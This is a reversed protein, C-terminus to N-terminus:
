YTLSKGKTDYTGIMKGDANLCKVTYTYTKGEEVDTDTYYTKSRKSLSVFKGSEDKKMVRYQAVGEVATWSLQIGTEKKKLKLDSVMVPPIPKAYTISKGVKDYAGYYKGEANITRVTYTYTKGEETATKDVYTTASVKALAVFNGSEDKKMVRYKAAGDIANWSIAVGNEANALAVEPITETTVTISKGTTDYDGVYSGSANMYRVTYIYTKGAEVTKDVYSTASIKALPAFKGGAEKRMVRYKAAIPRAEWSIRVGEAVQELSVEQVCSVITFTSNYTGTYNGLGTVTVKGIGIATNDSYSLSYDKGETLVVSGDKVIMKPTLESGMYYIKEEEPQVTIASNIAKANITFSASKSGKYNGKGTVTATATGANVNNKYTVTYDTGKTLTKSGNKVVVGPEKSTGSYTYSTTQVTLDYGSLSIANITFNLEKTGGYNGKGTITITGTGANTNNSYSITYNTGSVLTTSGNKVTVTPRIASGTYDFSKTYDYTLTDVSIPKITFYVYKTNRYYGKGSVVVTGTGVSTNTYYSVTYDTGEVLTYSGDKITVSPKHQSGNYTVDAPQSINLTSIDVAQIYFSKTTTGTYIGIGKISVRGYGVEINNTYTLEYDTGEKLNKDGNKVTVAPKIEKGTYTFNSESLEITQSSISIANIYLYYTKTGTYMNKGSIVMRGTGIEVNDTYTVDYDEGETLVKDGYKITVTPTFPEGTYTTSTGSVTTTTNSSNISLAKITYTLEKTGGYIGKGTVIIKATGPYVNNQYDLTYDKGETLVNSESDTVILEPKIAAGTCDFSETYTYSLGSVPKPTINFKIIKVNKYNGLGTIKISAEGIATNNLYEITYDTGSTLSYYGNRVSVSPTIAAGTYVKDTVSSFTMDNIDAPVIKFSLEKTGTYNSYGNVKLTKDGVTTNDSISISYDTGKVLSYDGHRIDLVPTISRATYTQDPIDAITLENVNRPSIYYQVERSGNFSGIGTITAKAYGRNVNNAYTITYDTGKVLTKSGFTITVDPSIEAGTYIQNEIKSVSANTIAIPNKSSFAGSSSDIEFFNIQTGDFTYWIVKSGNLIPRCDSLFGNASKISGSITGSGDVFAYQLIGERSWLVLFKNSNVKVLFPNSASATGEAYNTLWKLSTAKTSKNVTGIFINKTKSNTFDSQNISNGAVLYYNDSVALGGLSVGTYNNGTNGTISMITYRTGSSVPATSSSLDSGYSQVIIARPYADGHDADVLHNGDLAVFQNFSHSSYSGCGKSVLSMNTTNVVFMYNSQHGSYMEHCTKVVLNNGYSIMEATGADYPISTDCASVGVSALRKWNTDYKTVRYAEVTDLHDENLQGSAVYYYNGDSYFAGFVPLEEAITQSKVFNYNSDYYEAIYCDSGDSTGIADFIMYGGDKTVTLYSYRPEAWNWSYNYDDINNHKAADALVNKGSFLFVFAMALVALGVYSLCRLIRKM